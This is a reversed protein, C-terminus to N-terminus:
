RTDIRQLLYFSDPWVEASPYYRLEVVTNEGAPASLRMTANAELKVKREWLRDSGDPSTVALILSHHASVPFSHALVLNTIAVSLSDGNGTVAMEAGSALMVPDRSGSMRHSRHTRVSGDDAHGADAAAGDVSPMHCKRCDFKNGDAWRHCGACFEAGSYREAQNTWHPVYLPEASSWITQGADVHCSLCDIGSQRSDQRAAPAADMEKGAVTEPSHCDCSSRGASTSKEKKYVFVPSDCALAHLSSSWEEYIACHCTACDGVGVEAYANLAWIAILAAPVCNMRKLEAFHM